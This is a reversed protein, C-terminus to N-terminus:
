RSRPSSGPIGTVWAKKGSPDLSIHFAAQGGTKIDTAKGGSVKVKHVIDSQSGVLLDGDPAFAVGDVGNLSAIAVPKGM